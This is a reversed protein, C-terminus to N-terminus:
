KIEKTAKQQKKNWVYDLFKPNNLNYIVFVAHVGSAMARAELSSTRIDMVERLKKQREELSGNMICYQIITDMVNSSKCSSVYLFLPDLRALYTIFQNDKELKNFM